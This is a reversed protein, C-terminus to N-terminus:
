QFLATVFKKYAVIGKMASIERDTILGRQRAEKAVPKLADIGSPNSVAVDCLARPPRCVALGRLQTVESPGLNARHLVVSKPARSNRRFTPPVPM